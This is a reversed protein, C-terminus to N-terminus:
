QFRYTTMEEQQNVGSIVRISGTFCYIWRLHLSLQVRGSLPPVQGGLPDLAQCSPSPQLSTGLPLQTSNILMDFKTSRCTNSCVTDHQYFDIQGSDMMKRHLFLCSLPSGLIRVSNSSGSVFPRFLHSLFPYQLYISGCYCTCVHYLRSICWEVAPKCTILDQEKLLHQQSGWSFGVSLDYSIRQSHMESLRVWVQNSYLSVLSPVHPHCSVASKFYAMVFLYVICFLPPKSQKTYRLMVGGLRIARKWDKLTAKGALHVFQKPSILQDNFQVFLRCCPTHKYLCRSVSECLLLVSLHLSHFIILCWLAFDLRGWGELTIECQQSLQTTHANRPNPPHYINFLFLQLFQGPCM